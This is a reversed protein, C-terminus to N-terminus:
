PTDGFGADAALGLFRGSLSRGNGFDGGTDEFVVSFSGRTNVGVGAGESITLEGRKIRPLNRVPEGGPAHAFTARPNGPQWDGSINVKKGPSADVGRLSIAVRIVVDVFLGRNRSYSLQLAEDNRYVAVKSVDLPILQELSGSLAVDPGCSSLLASLLIAAPKV